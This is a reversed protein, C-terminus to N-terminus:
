HIIYEERNPTIYGTHCDEKSDKPRLDISSSKFM